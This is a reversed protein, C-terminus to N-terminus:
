DGKYMVHFNNSSYNTNKIRQPTQKVSKPVQNKNDDYCLVRSGYYEGTCYKKRMIDQISIVGDLDRGLIEELEDQSSVRYVTKFCRAIKSNCAGDISMKLEKWDGKYGKFFFVIKQMTSSENVIKSNYDIIEMFDSAADNDTFLKVNKYRSALGSVESINQIYIDFDRNETCSEIFKSVAASHQLHDESDGNYAIVFYGVTGGLYEVLGDEHVRTIRLLDFLTSFVNHLMKRFFKLRTPEDGLIYLGVRIAYLIWLPAFVAVPIYYFLGFYVFIVLPVAAVVVFLVKNGITGEHQGYYHEIDLLMDIYEDDKEM